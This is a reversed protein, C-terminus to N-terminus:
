DIFKTNPDPVYLMESEFETYLFMSAVFELPDIVPVELVTYPFITVPAETLAKKPVVVRADVDVGWVIVDFATDKPSRTCFLPVPMETVSLSLKVAVDYMRVAPANANFLLVSDTPDKVELLELVRDICNLVDPLM